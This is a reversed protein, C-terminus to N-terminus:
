ESPRPMLCIFLGGRVFRNRAQERGWTPICGLPSPNTIAFARQVAFFYRRTCSPERPVGRDGQRFARRFTLVVGSGETRVAELVHGTEVTGPMRDALTRPILDNGGRVHFREDSEGFVKFADDDETGIFTLLNLASQEEIQLGMETTYAVDILDRLWGSVGNRDLWQAISIADLARFAPNTDTYDLAGEGLTAVDREIMAAIPVFAEVLEREGIRRGGFWWTDVDTDGDLLDDLTIGLESALARIRVHGTDILEGGLEIVQGNPFHDRLSLMRGGVRAQAEFVRAPVGAQRLRWAATLGAIGAGVIAVDPMGGGGAIRTAPACATLALSAAAGQLLRRRTADVRLARGREQFEDLPMDAHSANRAIRAARQLLAFLPTRAM